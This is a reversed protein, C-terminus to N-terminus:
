SSSVAGTGNQSAVAQKMATSLSLCCPCAARHCQALHATGALLPALAARGPSHGAVAIHENWKCERCSM